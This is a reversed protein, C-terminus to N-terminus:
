TAIWNVCFGHTTLWKKMNEKKPRAQSFLVLVARKQTDGETNQTLIDQETHRLFPKPFGKSCPGNKMCVSSPNHEGSPGHIMNTTVITYLHPDIIRDPIEASVVTDIANPPIKCKRKLWLLLHAHPTLAGNRFSSPICGLKYNELHEM